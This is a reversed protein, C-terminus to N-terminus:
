AARREGKEAELRQLHERLKQLGELKIGLDEAYDAIMYENFTGHDLIRYKLSVLVRSSRGNTHGKFDITKHEVVGLIFYIIKGNSSVALICENSFRDALNIGFKKGAAVAAEQLGVESSRFDGHHIYKLRFHGSFASM